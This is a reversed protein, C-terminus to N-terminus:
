SRLVVLAVIVIAAALLLLMWVSLTPIAAGSAVPSCVSVANTDLTVAGNHALARGSLGAGTTLTISTLALINGALNSTTGLTASSGVQWFVNCSSGGNIIVVSSDSATTLTSGIKFIFSANPDGDADLTLTGTLGASSAFCYVGSFLTKGGLDQGTLDATCPMPTISNFATILDSQAQIATADNSHITGGVVVGPPFGTVASGPSVGVNGNITTSGTNTVTTGGLVQFNAATGLNVQAQIPAVVSFVVLAAVFALRRHCRKGTKTTM